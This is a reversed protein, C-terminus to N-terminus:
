DIIVGKYQIGDLSGAYRSRLENDLQVRCEEEAKEIFQDAEQNLFFEGLPTDGYDRVRNCFDNFDSNNYNMKHLELVKEQLTM